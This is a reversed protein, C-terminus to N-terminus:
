CAGWHFLVRCSYKMVFTAPRPNRVAITVDVRTSVRTKGSYVLATRGYIATGYYSLLPNWKSMLFLSYCETDTCWSYTLAFGSYAAIIFVGTNLPNFCAAIKHIPKMNIHIFFVIVYVLLCCYGLPSSGHRLM